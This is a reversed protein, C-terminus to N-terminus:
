TEPGDTDGCTLRRDGIRVHCPQEARYRATYEFRERCHPRLRRRRDAFRVYTLVVRFSRVPVQARRGPNAVDLWAVPKGNCGAAASTWDLSEEVDRTLGGAYEPTSFVVVDAGTIRELLDLVVPDPAEDPVFV